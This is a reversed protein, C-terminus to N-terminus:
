PLHIKHLFRVNFFEKIKLCHATVISEAISIGIDLVKLLLILRGFSFLGSDIRMGCTCKQPLAAVTIIRQDASSIWCLICAIIRLGLCPFSTLGAYHGNAVIHAGEISCRTVSGVVLGIDVDESLAM